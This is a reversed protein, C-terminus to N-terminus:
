QVQEFSFHCLALRWDRANLFPSKEACNPAFGALRKAMYVIYHSLLLLVCVQPTPSPKRPATTTKSPPTMTIFLAWM